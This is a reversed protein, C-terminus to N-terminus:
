VIRKTPLTLHTYSVAGPVIPGPLGSAEAIAQDTFRNPMPNGWLQCFNAVNEDTAVLEMPGIESGLEVDQFTPLNDAAM